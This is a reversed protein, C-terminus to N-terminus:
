FVIQKTMLWQRNVPGRVMTRACWLERLNSLRIARGVEESGFVINRKVCRNWHGIIVIIWRRNQCYEVLRQRLDRLQQRVCWFDGRFTLQLDNQRSCSLVSLLDNGPRLLKCPLVIQIKLSFQSQRSESRDAITHSAFVVSQSYTFVYSDTTFFELNRVGILSTEDSGINQAPIIFILFKSWSLKSAGQIPLCLIRAQM